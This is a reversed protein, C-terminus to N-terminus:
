DETEEGYLGKIYAKFSLEGAAYSLIGKLTDELDEAAADLADSLVATFREAPLEPVIPITYRYLLQKPILVEEDEELDMAYHGGCLVGNTVALLVALDGKSEPPFESLDGLRGEMLLYSIDQLEEKQPLFGLDLYIDGGYEKGSLLLSLITGDESLRAAIHRSNLDDCLSSLAEKQKKILDEM